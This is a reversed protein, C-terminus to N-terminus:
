FRDPPGWTPDSENYVPNEEDRDFNESRIVYKKEVRSIPKVMEINKIGSDGQNSALDNENNELASKLDNNENVLKNAIAKEGYTAKVTNKNM